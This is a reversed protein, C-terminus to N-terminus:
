NIFEQSSHQVEFILKKERTTEDSSETKYAYKIVLLPATNSFIKKWWKTEKILQSSIIIEQPLFITKEKPQGSDAFRTLVDIWSNQPFHHFRFGGSTEIILGWIGGLKKEDFEDWGSIYKGLGRKIVKEGTNEEYEQWFTDASKEEKKTLM